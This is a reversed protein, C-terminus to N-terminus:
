PVRREMALSVAFTPPYNLPDLVQATCTIAPNKAYVAGQGQFIANTGPSGGLLVDDFYITTNQTSFTFSRLPPASVKGVFIDTGNWQRVLVKIDITNKRSTNSCHVSTAEKRSVSGQEGDDSVGAFVYILEYKDAEELAADASQSLVSGGEGEPYPKEESAYASMAFAFLLAASLKLTKRISM